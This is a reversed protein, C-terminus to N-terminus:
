GVRGLTEHGPEGIGMPVYSCSSHGVNAEIAGTPAAPQERRYARWADVLRFVLSVLAAGHYARYAIDPEASVKSFRPHDTMRVEFFLHLSPLLL